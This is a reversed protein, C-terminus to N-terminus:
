IPLTESPIQDLFLSNRDKESVLFSFKSWHIDINSDNRRTGYEDGPTYFNYCKYVFDAENSM